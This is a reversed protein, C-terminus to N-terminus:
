LAIHYTENTKCKDVKNSKLSGTLRIVIDFTFSQKLKYKEYLNHPLSITPKIQQLQKM